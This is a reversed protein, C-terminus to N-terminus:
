GAPAFVYVLSTANDGIYVVGDAGIAVAAPAEISQTGAQTFEFLKEGTPSFKTVKKGRMEVVYVGGDPGVRPVAPTQLDKALVAKLSGDAVNVALLRRQGGFESVYLTNGDASLAVGSPIQLKEGQSGGVVDGIVTFDGPNLKVVRNGAQDLVYLGTPGQAADTIRMFGSGSGRFTKWIKKNGRFDLYALESGMMRYIGRDPGAVIACPFYHSFIGMPQGDRRMQHMIGSRDCVLVDGGLGTAVAVLSAIKNFRGPAVDSGYRATETGDPGYRFVRTLVVEKALDVVQSFRGEAAVYLSSADPAYMALVAGGVPAPKRVSKGNEDWVGILASQAGYRAYPIAVFVMGAPNVAIRVAAADDVRGPLTIKLTPDIKGDAGLRVVGAEADYLVVRGKGDVGFSAPAKRVSERPYALVLKGDPGYKFLSATRTPASVYINGAGDARLALVAGIGESKGLRGCYNGEADFMLVGDAETGILLRDQGDVAACTPRRIEGEKAEKAAAGGPDDEESSRAFNDYYKGNKEFIDIRYSGRPSNEVVYVNGYKDVAVDKVSDLLGGSPDGIAGVYKYQKVMAVGQSHAAVCVVGMLAIVALITHLRM